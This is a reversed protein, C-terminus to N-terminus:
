SVARLDQNKVILGVRRLQGINGQEGLPSVVRSFMVNTVIVFLMRFSYMSLRQSM